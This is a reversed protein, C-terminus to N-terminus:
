REEYLILDLLLTRMQYFKFLVKLHVCILKTLKNYPPVYVPSLKQRLIKNDFFTMKIRSYILKVIVSLSFYINWISKKYIEDLEIM